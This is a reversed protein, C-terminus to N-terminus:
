IGVWGVSSIMWQSSVVETAWYNSRVKDRVNVRDRISSEEGSDSVVPFEAGFQFQTYVLKSSALIIEPKHDQM